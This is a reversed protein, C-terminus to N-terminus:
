PLSRVVHAIVNAVTPVAEAGSHAIHDLDFDGAANNTVLALGLVAAQAHRAAITELAMSMGVVDAGMTRLMGVEAPTEFQPGLVQAYVGETIPQALDPTARALLRLRPDYADVMDIFEPGVLPTHGTLNLQDSVAVISGPHLAPNIGGVAATLIVTSCGAAVGTRLPHVVEHIGIGEYLHCRGAFILAMKDGIPVSWGQAHHGTATYKPFFPLTALPISPGSAGLLEATGALGSGLIVLVDHHEVGTRRALERATRTAEDTGDVM